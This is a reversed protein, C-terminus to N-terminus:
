LFLIEASNELLITDSFTPATTFPNVRVKSGHDDSAHRPSSVFCVVSPDCVNRALCVSAVALGDLPFRSTIAPLQDM